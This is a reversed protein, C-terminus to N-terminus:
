KRDELKFPTIILYGTAHPTTLVGGDRKEIAYKDIFSRPGLHLEKEHLFKGRVKVPRYEM